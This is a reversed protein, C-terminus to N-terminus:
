KFFVVGYSHIVNARRRLAPFVIGSIL